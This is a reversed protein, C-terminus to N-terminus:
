KRNIYEIFKANIDNRIHSATKRDYAEAIARSTWEAQRQAGDRLGDEHGMDMASFIMIFGGILIGAYQKVSKVRIKM